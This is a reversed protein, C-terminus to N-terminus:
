QNFVYFCVRVLQYVVPDATEQVTIDDDRAEENGVIDVITEMSLAACAM